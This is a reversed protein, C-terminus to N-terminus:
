DKSLLLSANKSALPSTSLIKIRDRVTSDSIELSDDIFKWIYKFIARRM